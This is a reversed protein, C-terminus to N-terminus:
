TLEDLSKRGVGSKLFKERVRAASYSSYEERYVVMYPAYAKTSKNLGGNHRLLRKEFDNTIGVYRFKKKLSKIVYVTIM